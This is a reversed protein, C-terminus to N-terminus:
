TYAILYEKNGELLTSDLGLSRNATRDRSSLLAETADKHFIYDIPLFRSTLNAFEHM